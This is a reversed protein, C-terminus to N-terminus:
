LQDRRHRYIEDDLIMELYKMFLCADSETQQTDAIIALIDLPFSSVNDIQILSQYICQRNGRYQLLFKYIHEEEFYLSQIAYIYVGINDMVLIEHNFPNFLKSYYNAIVDKNAIATKTIYDSVIYKQEEIQSWKCLVRDFQDIRHNGLYADLLNPYVAYCLKKIIENDKAHNDIYEQMEQPYRLSLDILIDLYIYECFGVPQFIHQNVRPEREWLALMCNEILIINDYVDYFERNDAKIYTVEKLKIIYKKYDDNKVRDLLYDQIDKKNKDNQYYISVMKSFLVTVTIIGALFSGIVTAGIGTIFGVFSWVVTSIAYVALAFFSMYRPSILIKWILDVWYICRNNESLMAMLSTTLFVVSCHIGFIALYDGRNSGTIYIGYKLYVNLIYSSIISCIATFVLSIVFYLGIIAKGEVKKPEFDYNRKMFIEVMEYVCKGGEAVSYYRVGKSVCM